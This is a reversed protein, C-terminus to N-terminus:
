SKFEDFNDKCEKGKWLRMVEADGKLVEEYFILLTDFGPFGTYFKVLNPKQKINELRFLLQKANDKSKQVMGQLQEVEMELEQCAVKLNKVEEELGQCKSELEEIQRSMIEQVKMGSEDSTTCANTTDSLEYVELQEDNSLDQRQYLSAAVKSTIISRQSRPQPLNSTWPFVTPIADAKLRPRSQKLQLENYKFDQLTFHL